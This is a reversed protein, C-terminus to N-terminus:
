VPRQNQKLAQSMKEFLKKSKEDVDGLQAYGYARMWYSALEPVYSALLRPKTAKFYEQAVDSLIQPFTNLWFGRPDPLKDTKETHFFHYVIDNEDVVAYEASFLEDVVKTFNLPQLGDVEQRGQDALVDLAKEQPLNQYNM